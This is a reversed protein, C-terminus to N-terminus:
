ARRSRSNLKKTMKRKKIEKRSLKDRERKNKRGIKKEEPDRLLDERYDDIKKRKKSIFSKLRASKLRSIRNLYLKGELHDYEHQVAGSLPWPLNIERSEFNSTLYSVSCASAREVEATVWPVSLCGESWSQTQESLSLSPNLLFWYRDEVLEDSLKQLFSKSEEWSAVDILIVKQNLGIQPAALGGGSEVKLTDIMDELLSPLYDDEPIVDVSKILLSKEPWQLPKRYSM